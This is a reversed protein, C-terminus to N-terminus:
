ITTGCAKKEVSADGNGNARENPRWEKNDIIFTVPGHYHTRNGFLIDSSSQVAISGINPRLTSPTTFLASCEGVTTPCCNANAEIIDHSYFRVDEDVDSDVITSDDDGNEDISKVSIANSCVSTSPKSSEEKATKAAAAANKAEDHNRSVEFEDVSSNTKEKALAPDTNIPEIKTDPMKKARKRLHHRVSIEFGINPRGWMDWM